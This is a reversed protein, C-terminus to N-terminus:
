RVVIGTGAGARGIIWAPQGAAASMAVFRDADAAAFSLLLGGSTQPDFLLTRYPPTLADHGVISRSQELYAQNRRAGGAIFGAAACALAGPLSPLAAADLQLAVGSARALEAGHGALGFGTIDTAAHVGCARARAAAERNLQMMSAVATALVAADCGDARAATTILGTGLPKTLVLVDGAQAGSKTTLQALDVVGTVCLGYTPERSSVTHGGGLAAGAEAVIDAGGQLIAACVAAPLDDPFGAIALALLPTGGMAYIDSLANAAAIAGYQRPDDVIPPFFDVTQVLTTRSDLRFVAADDPVGLGVLLAPSSPM